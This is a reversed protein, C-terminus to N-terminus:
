TKNVETALEELAFTLYQCTQFHSSRNGCILHLLACHKLSSRTIGYHGALPYTKHGQVSVFTAAKKLIQMM